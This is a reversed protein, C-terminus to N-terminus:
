VVEKGVMASLLELAQMSTFNAFGVPSVPFSGDHDIPVVFVTSGNDFVFEIDAPTIEKRAVRVRLENIVTENAIERRVPVGLKHADLLENVLSKVRGDAVVIGNDPDYKITIM